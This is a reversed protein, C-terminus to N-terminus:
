PTVTNEPQKGELRQARQGSRWSREDQNLRLDQQRLPELALRRRHRAEQLCDNVAFKQWCATADQQFSLMVASRQHTIEQRQLRIFEPEEMPSQAFVGASACAMWIAMLWNKM